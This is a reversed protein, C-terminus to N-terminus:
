LDTVKARVWAVRETNRHMTDSHFDRGWRDQGGFPYNPSLGDEVFLGWLEDEFDLGDGAHIWCLSDDRDFPDGHPAGRDVWVLWETLLERLAPTV